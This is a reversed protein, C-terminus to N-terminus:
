INDCRSGSRWWFRILEDKDCMWGRWLIEDSHMWLKKLYGAWLCVILCPHFCLRLRGKTTVFFSLFFRFINNSFFHVSTQLKSRLSPHLLILTIPLQKQKNRLGLHKFNNNYQVWYLREVFDERAFDFAQTWTRPYRLWYVCASHLVCM